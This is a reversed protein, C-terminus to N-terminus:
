IDGNRKTKISDLYLEICENELLKSVSCFLYLLLSEQEIVNKYEDYYRPNEVKIEDIDTYSINDDTIEKGLIAFTSCSGDCSGNDIHNPFNELDTIIEFLSRKIKEVTEDTLVYEKRTKEIFDFVYTKHIFTGDEHLEVSFGGDDVGFCGENATFAYGFIVSKEFM